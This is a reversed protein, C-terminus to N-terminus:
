VHARGIEAPWDGEVIVEGEQIVVHHVVGQLLMGGPPTATDSLLHNAPALTTRRTATAGRTQLCVRTSGPRGQVGNEWRWFLPQQRVCDGLLPGLPPALESGRFAGTSTSPPREAISPSAKVSM